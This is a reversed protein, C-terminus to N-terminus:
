TLPPRTKPLLKEYTWYSYLRYFLTVLALIGVIATQFPELFFALIVTLLLSFLVVLNGSVGNIPYNDLLFSKRGKLERSYCQEHYPHVNLLKKTTVLEKQSPIPKKCYECIVPKQM